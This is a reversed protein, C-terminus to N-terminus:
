GKKPEDKRAESLMEIIKLLDVVYEHQQQNIEQLASNTRQLESIIQRQGRIIMFKGVENPEVIKGTRTRLAQFTSFYDELDAETVTKARNENEKFPLGGEKMARYIREKSIKFIEEAEAITYWKVDEDESIADVVDPDLIETEIKKKAMM